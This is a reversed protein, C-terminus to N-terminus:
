RYSAYKNQLSLLENECLVDEEEDIECDMAQDLLEIAKKYEKIGVYAKAMCFLNAKWKSKIKLVEQFKHIADQYSAKPVEGFLAQALNREIWSLKAVEICWKGWVYYIIPDDPKLKLAEELHRQVAKGRELREKKGVHDSLKGCVCAYWIHADGCNPDIALAKKGWEDAENLLKVVKKTDKGVEAMSSAKHASRALRWLVEANKEGDFQKYGEKTREYVDDKNSKVNLAAIDIEEIWKELSSYTM